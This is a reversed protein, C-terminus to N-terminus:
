LLQFIEYKTCIYKYDSTSININISLYINLLWDTLQLILQLCSKWLSELHQEWTFVTVQGWSINQNKSYICQEINELYFPHNYLRINSYCKFNSLLRNAPCLIVMLRKDTELLNMCILFSEFSFWLSSLYHARWLLHKICRWKPILWVTHSHPDFCSLDISLIKTFAFLFVLSTIEM